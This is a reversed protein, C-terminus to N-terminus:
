AASGGSQPIVRNVIRNQRLSFQAIKVLKSSKKSDGPGRM